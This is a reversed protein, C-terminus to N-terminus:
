KVVNVSDCGSISGGGTLNATLCAETDGFALGTEKQRYHSVLDTFGDMNVDQLHDALTLPDSLDHAPPAAAPGFALTSVDVDNVDFTDSGLIAVPVVGNSKTNISNPDSGPKIDIDVAFFAVPLGCPPRTDLFPDFDVGATVPDGSGLGVPGPGDAAGWWNDEAVFTGGATNNVGNPTNGEFCNDIVTNAGFPDEVRIGDGANRLIENLEITVGSIIGGGGRFRIGRDLNDRILNNRVVTGGVGTGWSRQVVYIGAKGNSFVENGTVLNDPANRDMAIGYTRNDHVVNNRVTTAESENSGGISIGAHNIGSIDNGEILARETNVGGAGGAVLIGFDLAGGFPPGPGVIVNNLIQVDDSLIAIDDEISDTFTGALTFGDLVVRDGSIGVLVQHSTGPFSGHPGDIITVAAGGTSQVTLDDLTIRVVETYTGPCVLVTDTAIAATLAAGITSFGLTGDDCDAASGLGDDDVVLTAAQATQVGFAMLGAVLITLTVVLSKM